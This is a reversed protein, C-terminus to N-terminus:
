NERGNQIKGNLITSEFIDQIPIEFNMIQINLIRAGVTYSNLVTTVYKTLNLNLKELKVTLSCKRVM